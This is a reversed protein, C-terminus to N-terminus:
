PYLCLHKSPLKVLNGNLLVVVMPKGVTGILEVTMSKQGLVTGPM